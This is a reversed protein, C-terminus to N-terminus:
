PLAPTGAYPSPDGSVPFVPRTWMMALALDDVVQRWRAPDWGEAVGVVQGGVNLHVLAPLEELGIAKVFQRDPDAFTILERSWPGVFQRAEDATGTVVWGVRCDAATFSQLIRGATDIIWASEYTFPDLVVVALHFMTVLDEITRPRGDLPALELDPPPDTAM